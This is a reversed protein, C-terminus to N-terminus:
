GPEITIIQDYGMDEVYEIPAASAVLCRTM